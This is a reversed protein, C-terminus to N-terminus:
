VFSDPTYLKPKIFKVANANINIPILPVALLNVSLLIGRRVPAHNITM